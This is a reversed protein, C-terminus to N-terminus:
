KKPTFFNQTYYVNYDGGFAVGVGLRECDGLINNRHGISNMLGEHAFIASSQGAAINEAAMVYEIDGDDMRDFPSEGELNDHSFYHNQVMDVSHARAVESIVDDWKFISKNFKIRAANALDLSQREFSIKLADSTVGFNGDLAEETEKKILLM